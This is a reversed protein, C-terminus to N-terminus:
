VGDDYDGCHFAMQSNQDPRQWEHRTEGASRQARL